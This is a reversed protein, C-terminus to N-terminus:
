VSRSPALGLRYVVNDLRRELLEVIGDSTVWRRKMAERVLKQFAAERIGYTVRFKQKEKLQIGYESLRRRRGKGHLGPPHPRRIMVAKPSNSREPKLFLNVGLSRERKGKTNFM